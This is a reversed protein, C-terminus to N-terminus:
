LTFSARGHLEIQRLIETAESQCFGWKVCIEELFWREPISRRLLEDGHFVSYTGDADRVFEWTNSKISGATKGIRRNVLRSGRTWSEERHEFKVLVGASSESQM